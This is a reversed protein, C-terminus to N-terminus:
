RGQEVGMGIGFLFHWLNKLSQLKVITLFFDENQSCRPCYLIEQSFHFLPKLAM